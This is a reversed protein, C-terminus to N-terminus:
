AEPAQEGAATTEPPAGVLDAGIVVTVDVVGLAQDGVAISGVGLARAISEAAPRDEDRYYVVQTKPVGFGPVNGTLTVEGGAPVVTEAVQRTVGIAGTGNLLEVRPRRGDGLVAWPYAEAMLDRVEDRELGFHETELTSALREVPLTSFHVDAGAMGAVTALGPDVALTSDAVPQEALAKRWGDLVSQVIVLRDFAGDDTEATVLRMADAASLEQEGEALDLAGREDVVHIPRHADVTVTGSPALARSLLEDDLLTVSDLDVGLANELTVEVLKADRRKGLDAITEAGLSPVEVLTSPPVLVVEASEGGEETGALVVFDIRGDSDVHAVLGLRAPPPKDDAASGKPGDARKGDAAGDRDGEAAVERPDGTFAALVGALAAVVLITTTSPWSGRRRGRAGRPAPAADADPADRDPALRAETPGEQGIVPPGM